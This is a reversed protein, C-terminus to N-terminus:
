KSPTSSASVLRRMQHDLGYPDLELTLTGSTRPRRSGTGGSGAPALTPKVASLLPTSGAHRGSASLVAIFFLCLLAWVTMGAVIDFIM